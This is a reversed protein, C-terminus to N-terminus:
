TRAAEHVVAEVNNGDPDLVFAAFWDPAYSPRLDPKGNDRGGHRLAEEHFKAVAGRDPARFALHARSPSKGEGIWLTIEGDRGFGASGGAEDVSEARYGLPGLVARYFALSKGFDRVELSVHDFM